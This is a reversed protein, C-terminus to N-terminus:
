DTFDYIQNKLEEIKKRYFAEVIEIMEEDGKALRTRIKYPTYGTLECIKKIDGYKLLSRYDRVLM